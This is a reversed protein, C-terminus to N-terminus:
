AGTRRAVNEVAEAPRRKDLEDRYTHKAESIAGKVAGTVSQTKDRTSRKIDGARTRIRSRLEAGTQPALLLAAVGGALAGIVFAVSSVRANSNNNNNNM